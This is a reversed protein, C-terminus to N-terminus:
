GLFDVKGTELDYVAGVVKVTGDAVAASLIPDAQELSTVNLRVNERIANDLADGPQGEVAKVAPAIASTLSPLHGPLTIGEAVVKQTAAVAGCASHGLVVILRTGLEAVTYELSAVGEPAAFNGALRVVFLEGRAQDFALEPAVRSDACGLIAAFPAQGQALAARSTAHDHPETDGSVYRANGERLRKLAEDPAVGGKAQARAPRAILPALAFGSLGAALTALGQRRTIPARMFGTNREM